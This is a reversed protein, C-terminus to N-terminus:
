SSTARRPIAEAPATKCFAAWEEMLRCRKAIMDGRRSAAEVKDPLAHALARKAVERPHATAKACWECFCSRFSHM